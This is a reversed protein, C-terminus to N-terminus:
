LKDELVLGLVASSTGLISQESKLRMQLRLPRNGEDLSTRSECRALLTELEARTIAKAQPRATLAVLDDYVGDCSQVAAVWEQKSAARNKDCDM